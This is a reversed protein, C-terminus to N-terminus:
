NFPRLARQFWELINTETIPGTAFLQSRNNSNKITPDVADMLDSPAIGLGGEGLEYPAFTGFQKILNAQRGIWEKAKNSRETETERAINSRNTEFERALNSRQLEELNAAAQSEQVVNSRHTEQERALNSRYNESERALNSRRTEEQLLQQLYERVLNARKTEVERALNARYTEQNQFDVDAERARNSRQQEVLSQYAVQNATM